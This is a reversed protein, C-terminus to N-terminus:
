KKRKSLRMLSSLDKKIFIESGKQIGGFDELTVEEGEFQLKSTLVPNHPSKKEIIVNDGRVKKDFIDLIGEKASKDFTIKISSSKM